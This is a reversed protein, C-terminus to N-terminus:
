AEMAQRLWRMEGGCEACFAAEMAGQLGARQAQTLAEDAAMARLMDAVPKALVKAANRELQFGLLRPMYRNSGFLFIQIFERCLRELYHATFVEPSNTLSLCRLLQPDHFLEQRMANQRDTDFDEPSLYLNLLHCKIGSYDLMGVAKTPLKGQFLWEEEVALCDPFQERAKQLLALKKRNNPQQSAKELLAAAEPPTADSEASLRSACFPCFAAQPQVIERRCRPCILNQM